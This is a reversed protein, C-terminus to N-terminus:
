KGPHTYVVHVKGDYSLNLLAHANYIGRYYISAWGYYDDDELVKEDTHQWAVHNGHESEKVIVTAEVPLAEIEEPNELETM